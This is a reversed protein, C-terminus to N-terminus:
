TGSKSLANLAANYAARSPGVYRNGAKWLYEMEDLLAVAQDTADDKRSRAWASMTAGYTITEPRARINGAAYSARMRDLIM